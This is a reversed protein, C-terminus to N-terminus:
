YDIIEQQKDDIEQWHFIPDEKDLLGAQFM